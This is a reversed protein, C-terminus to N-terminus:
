ATMSPSDAVRNVVEVFKEAQFPKVVYAAVGKRLSDKVTSERSISTVIVIRASPDGAVIRKAAELGDM